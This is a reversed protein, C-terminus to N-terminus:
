SVLRRARSRTTVHCVGSRAPRLTGRSIHLLPMNHPSMLEPFPHNQVIGATYKAALDIIDAGTYHFHNLSRALASYLLSEDRVGEAGGHEALQRDHIAFVLDNEIWILESM